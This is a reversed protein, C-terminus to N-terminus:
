DLRECRYVSPGIKCRYPRLAANAMAGLVGPQVRIQSGNNEVLIGRSHRSIDVLLGDTIAQGSLSTGGARFTFPIGQQQSFQFLAAIEEESEPLVVAEPVLQYFGADPAYSLRDILRSLVREKLILKELQAILAAQKPSTMPRTM